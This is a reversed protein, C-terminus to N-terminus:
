TMTNLRAPGIEGVAIKGKNNNITLLMSNTEAKPTKRLEQKLRLEIDADIFRMKNRPKVVGIQQGEGKGVYM